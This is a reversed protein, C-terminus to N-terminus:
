HNINGVNKKINPLMTPKPICFIMYCQLILVLIVWGMHGIGYNKLFNDICGFDVIAQVIMNPIRMTKMPGHRPPDVHFAHMKWYLRLNYRSM